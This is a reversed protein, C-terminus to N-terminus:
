YHAEELGGRSSVHGKATHLETQLRSILRTIDAIESKSTRLEGTYQDAQTTM